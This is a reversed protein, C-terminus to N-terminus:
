EALIGYIRGAARKERVVVQMPAHVDIYPLGSDTSEMYKLLGPYRHNITTDMAGWRVAYISSTDSADDGPDEDFDLIKVGQSDEGADIVPIGNFTLMTQTKGMVSVERWSLYQAFANNQAANLLVSAMASLNKETTFFLTPRVRVILEFMMRTLDELGGAASIKGGGSSFLIKVPNGAENWNDVFQEIGINAGTGKIIARKSDLSIAEAIERRADARHNGGDQMPEDELVPDLQARVGFDFMSFPVNEFPQQKSEARTANYDRASAQMLKYRRKETFSISSKQTYDALSLFPSTEYIQKVVGAARPDTLKSLVTIANM